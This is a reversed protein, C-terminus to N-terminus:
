PTEVTTEDQDFELFQIIEKIKFIRNNGLKTKKIEMMEKPIKFEHSLKLMLSSTTVNFREQTYGNGARFNMYNTYLQKGTFEIVDDENKYENLFDRLWQKIPSEYVEV